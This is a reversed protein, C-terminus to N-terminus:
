GKPKGTSGSTYLIFLPHEAEVWEPECNDSQGDIADHWWIDRGDQMTVDVGSRQLVIVSEISACGEALAKDTTEKLPVLKGGRYNGDATVLLKAEADEIRNRLSPASFGAFVVSHIAGIRACALMTIAAELINPLYMVVRDGKGINQAKLANAFRCVRSHLQRYTVKEVTGDDAEFIIATRDGRTELHRDLCNYAVNLKGDAFWKFFPAESDDLVQTFPEQWTVLQRAQEAWFGENDAAAAERMARVDEPKHNANALFEASPEFTRDEQLISEINSSDAM